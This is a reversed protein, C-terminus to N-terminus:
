VEKFAKLLFILGEVELGLDTLLEATKEAELQNTSITNLLTLSKWILNKYLRQQMKIEFVNGFM